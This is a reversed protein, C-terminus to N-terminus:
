KEESILHIERARSEQFNWKAGRVAFLLIYAWSNSNIKLFNYTHIMM